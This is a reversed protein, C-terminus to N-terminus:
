GASTTPLSRHPLCLALFLVPQFAGFTTTCKLWSGIFCAFFLSLSGLERAVYRKM